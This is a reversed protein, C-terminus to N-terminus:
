NERCIELAHGLTVRPIISSLISEESLLFLSIGYGKLWKYYSETAKPILGKEWALQRETAVYRTKVAHKTNAMDWGVVIVNNYKMRIALPIALEFMIGPGWAAINRNIDRFSKGWDETVLLSSEKNGQITFHERNPYYDRFMNKYCVRSATFVTTLPSYNYTQLNINNIVHYAASPWLTYSQKVAMVDRGTCLTALDVKRLSPGNSLIILTKMDIDEV